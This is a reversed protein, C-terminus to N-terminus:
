RSPTVRGRFTEALELFKAEFAMLREDRRWQEPIAKAAALIDLGPGWVALGAPPQKGSSRFQKRWEILRNVATSRETGPADPIIAIKKRIEEAADREREGRDIRAQLAACMSARANWESSPEIKRNSIKGPDLAKDLRGSDLDLLAAFLHKLPEQTDRNTGISTFAEQAARIAYGFAERHSGMSHLSNALLLTMEAQMMLEPNFVREGDLEFYVPLSGDVKTTYIDGKEASKSHRQLKVPTNM